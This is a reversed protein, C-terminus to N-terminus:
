ARITDLHARLHEVMEFRGEPPGNLSLLWQLQLGDMVSILNRATKALDLGPTLNGNQEEVALGTIINRLTREYRRVYYDHAPHNPSTAEMALAMYLEIISHREQNLAVLHLLGDLFGAGAERIEDLTRFTEADRHLLVAELLAVKTPFHRLLGPHTIGVRTAIDRLSSGNYGADAFAETAATVSAERTARGRAYGRQAPPSALHDSGSTLEDIEHTMTVAREWNDTM